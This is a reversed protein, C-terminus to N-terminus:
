TQARAHLRPRHHPHGIGTLPELVHRGHTRTAKLLRWLAGRVQRGKGGETAAGQKRKRERDKRMDEDENGGEEVNRRRAEQADRQPAESSM